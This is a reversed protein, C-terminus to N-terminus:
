GGHGCAGPRPAGPVYGIYAWGVEGANGGHIPDGLFGELTLVVLDHVFAAGSLGDSDAGGSQVHELVFDAAQPELEVFGPAKWDRAAIEDFRAAWAEFPERSGAWYETALALEVYDIVRAEAAGPGDDSPLIRETAREIVARAGASFRWPGSPLAGTPKSPAREKDEDKGRGLLGALVGALAAFLGALLFLFRRRGFRSKM